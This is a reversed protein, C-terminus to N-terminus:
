SLNHLVPYLPPPGNRNLCHHAVNVPPRTYGFYSPTSAIQVRCEVFESKRLGVANNGAAVEYLDDLQPFFAIEQNRDGKQKSTISFSALVLRVSMFRERVEDSCVGRMETLMDPMRDPDDRYILRIPTRRRSKGVLEWLRGFEM